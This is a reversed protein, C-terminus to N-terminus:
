VGRVVAGWGGVFGGSWRKHVFAGKVVPVVFFGHVRATQNKNSFSFAMRCM